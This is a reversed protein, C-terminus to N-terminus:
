KKYVNSRKGIKLIEVEKKDEFILFIIRYKGKRIKREKDSSDKLFNSNYPNIILEEISNLITDTDKKNKKSLKLLYKKVSPKIIINYTLNKELSM